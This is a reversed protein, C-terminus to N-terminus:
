GPAGAAAAARNGAWTEETSGDEPERRPPVTTVNVPLPNVPAFPTRNPDSDATLKVTTESVSIRTIVGADERACFTVTETVKGSPDCVGVDSVPGNKV